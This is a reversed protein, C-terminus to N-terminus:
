GLRGGRCPDPQGVRRELETLRLRELMPAEGTLAESYATRHDRGVLPTQGVYLHSLVIGRDDAYADHGLRVAQVWTLAWLGCGARDIDAGYLNEAREVAALKVGPSVLRQPRDPDVPRSSTSLWQDADIQQQGASSTLVFAVFRHYADLYGAPDRDYRVVGLCAVRVSPSLTLWRKLEDLDLRGPHRTVERLAPFTQRVEGLVADIVDNATATM